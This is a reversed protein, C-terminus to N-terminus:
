VMGRATETLAAAVQEMLFFHWTRTKEDDDVLDTPWAGSDKAEVSVVYRLLAVAGPVTLSDASVLALAAADQENYTRCAMEIHALWRPDDGEVQWDPQGFLAATMDSRRREQPVAAEVEDEGLNDYWEQYARRHREIAAYIPDHVRGYDGASVPLPLAV